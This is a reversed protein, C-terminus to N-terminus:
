MCCDTELMNSLSKRSYLKPWRRTKNERLNENERGDVAKIYEFSNSCM